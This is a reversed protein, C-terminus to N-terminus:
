ESVWTMLVRLAGGLSQYQKNTLNSFLTKNHSEFTPGFSFDFSHTELVLKVAGDWRKQPELDLNVTFKPPSKLARLSPIIAFLFLAQQLNM